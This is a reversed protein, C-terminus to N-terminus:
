ARQIYRSRLAEYAWDTPAVDRIENVSTVQAFSNNEFNTDITKSHPHQAQQIKKLIDQNLNDDAKAQTAVTALALCGLLMPLSKVLPKM